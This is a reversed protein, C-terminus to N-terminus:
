RVLWILFLSSSLLGLATSFAMFTLLIDLFCEYCKIVPTSCCGVHGVTTSLILTARVNSGEKVYLANVLWSNEVISSRNQKRDQLRM